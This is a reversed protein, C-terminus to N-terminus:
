ARRMMNSTAPTHITACRLHNTRAVVNSQKEERDLTGFAIVKEGFTNMTEEADCYRSHSMSGSLRPEIIM